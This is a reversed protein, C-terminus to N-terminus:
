WIGLEHNTAALRMGNRRATCRDCLGYTTHTEKSSGVSSMIIKDCDLCKIVMVRRNFPWMKGLVEAKTM